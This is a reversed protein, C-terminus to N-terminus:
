VNEKLVRKWKNWMLSNLELDLVYINWLKKHKELILNVEFVLSRLKQVDVKSLTQTGSSTSSM